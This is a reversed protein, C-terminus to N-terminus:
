LLVLDDRHVMEARGRYGLVEEIEDTRRGLLAKADAADFAALGKAVPNGDPARVLVAGGDGLTEGGEVGGVGLRQESAPGVLDLRHEAIAAAGLHHM